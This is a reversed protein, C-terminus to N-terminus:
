KKNYGEPIEFKGDDLSRQEISIVETTLTFAKMRGGKDSDQSKLMNKMMKEMDDGAPEKQLIASSEILIVIKIPFGDRRSMSDALVEFQSGYGKLMSSMNEQAWMQNVGVADAYRAQYAKVEAGGPVNRTMWQEYTIFVTDGPSDKKLGVAKGLYGDCQFGNIDKSNPRSAFEVAWTYDDTDGADGSEGESQSLQRKLTELTNETYTNEKPDLEWFLNKDLRVINVKEKAVNNGMMAMMGGGVGTTVTSHSKDGKINEVGDMKLTIINAMDANSKYTVVVDAGANLASLITLVIAIMKIM